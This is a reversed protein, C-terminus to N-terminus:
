SVLAVTAPSQREALVFKNVIGWAKRFIEARQPDSIPKANVYNGHRVPDAFAKISVIDDREIQYQTRFRGWKTNEDGTAQHKVVFANKL